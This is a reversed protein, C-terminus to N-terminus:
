KQSSCALLNVIDKNAELFDLNLLYSRACWQMGGQQECCVAEGEYETVLYFYLHAKHSAYEYQTETILESSLIDLGVEEKVERSLANLPTEGPEIKGGPFEWLGGHAGQEARKTVLVRENKDVIIAVAVKVSLQWSM